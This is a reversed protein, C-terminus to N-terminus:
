VQWPAEQAGGYERHAGPSGRMGGCIGGTSLCLRGESEMEVAAAVHCALRRAEPPRPAQLDTRHSQAEGEPFTNTEHIRHLPASRAAVLQWLSNWQFLLPNRDQSSNPLCSILLIM